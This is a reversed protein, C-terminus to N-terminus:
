WMATNHQIPEVCVIVAASHQVLPEANVHAIGKMPESGQVNVMSLMLRTRCACFAAGRALRQLCVLVGARVM